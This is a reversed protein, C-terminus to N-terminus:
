YAALLLRKIIIKSKYQYRWLYRSYETEKNHDNEVKVNELSSIIDNKKEIDSDKIAEIFMAYMDEIHEKTAIMDYVYLCYSFNNLTKGIYETINWIIIRRNCHFVKVKSIPNSKAECNM